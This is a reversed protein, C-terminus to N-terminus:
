PSQPSHSLAISQCGLETVLVSAKPVAGAQSASPLVVEAWAATVGLRDTGTICGVTGLGRGSDGGWSM